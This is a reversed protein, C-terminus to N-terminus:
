NSEKDIRKRINVVDVFRGFEADTERIHHTVWNCLFWLLDVSNNSNHKHNKQFELVRCAFLEHEEKHEALKPYSTETMLSEECAFHDTAFDVLEEVVSQKINIGERFEDYTKNLLQVLQRHHQDIEHIGLLFSINWEVIPM